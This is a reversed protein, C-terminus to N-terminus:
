GAIQRALADPTTWWSVRRRPDSWGTGAFRRAPRNNVDIWRDGRRAAPLLDSWGSAPRVEVGDVPASQSLGDAISSIRRMGAWWGLDVGLARVAAPDFEPAGWCLAYGIYEECRPAHCPFQACELLARHPESVWTRVTFRRAGVHVTSKPERVHRIGATTARASGRTSTALTLPFTLPVGAADIGSLYAIRRENQGFVADLLCELDQTWMGPPYGLLADVSGETALPKYWWGRGASRVLGREALLRLARSASSPTINAVDRYQATAFVRPLSDLASAAHM